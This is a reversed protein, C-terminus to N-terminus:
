RGQFKWVILAVQQQTKVQVIKVLKTIKTFTWLINEETDLPGLKNYISFITLLLFTWYLLINLCMLM